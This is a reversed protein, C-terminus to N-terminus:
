RVYKVYRGTSPDLEYIAGARADLRIRGTLVRGPSFQSLQLFKRTFLREYTSAGDGALVPTASWGYHKWTFAYREDGDRIESMLRGRYRCRLDVLGNGGTCATLRGETDYSFHITSRDLVCEAVGAPGWRVLAVRRDGRYVECRGDTELFELRGGQASAISRLSGRRYRFVMGHLDHLLIVGPSPFEARWGGNADPRALDITRRKGNPEQWYVDAGRPEVWSEFPNIRWISSIGDSTAVLGHTLFVEFSVSPGGSLYGLSVRYYLGGDPGFCGIHPTWDSLQAFACPPAAALLILFLRKMAM